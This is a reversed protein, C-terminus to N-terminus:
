PSYLEASAFPGAHDNGGAALVEGNNLLTATHNVRATNLNGTNAWTGSSQALGPVAIGAALAIALWVALYHRCKRRQGVPEISGGIKVLTIPYHRLTKMNRTRSEM